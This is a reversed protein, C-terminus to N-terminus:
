SCTAKVTVGELLSLINWIRYDILEFRFDFFEFEMLFTVFNAHVDAIDSNLQM